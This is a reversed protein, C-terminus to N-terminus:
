AVVPTVLAVIVPNGAPTVPVQADFSTDMLPVGVTDPANVYVTVKVPPQPVTVAVPVM